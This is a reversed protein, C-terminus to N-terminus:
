SQRHRSVRPFLGFFQYEEPGWLAYISNNPTNHSLVLPLSCNAFGFRASETGGIAIHRDSAKEDYYEPKSLMSMLSPEGTPTLAQAAGPETSM